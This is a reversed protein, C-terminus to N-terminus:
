PVGGLVKASNASLWNLLRSKKSMDKTSPNLTGILNLGVDLPQLRPIVHLASTMPCHGAASFVVPPQLLGHVTKLVFSYQQLM